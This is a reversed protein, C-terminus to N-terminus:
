ITRLGIRGLGRVDGLDFCWFGGILMCVLILQWAGLGEVLGHVEDVDGIGSEERQGGRFDLIPAGVEQKLQANPTRPKPIVPQVLISGVLPPAQNPSVELHSGRVNRTTQVDPSTVGQKVPRSCDAAQLSRINIHSIVTTSLAYILPSSKSGAPLRIVVQHTVEGWSM